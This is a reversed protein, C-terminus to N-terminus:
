LKMAYNVGTNLSPNGGARAELEARLTFIFPFDVDALWLFQNVEQAAYDTRAPEPTTPDFWGPVDGLAAALAM